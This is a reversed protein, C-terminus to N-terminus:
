RLQCYCLNSVKASANVNKFFTSQKLSDVERLSEKFVWSQNRCGLMEFIIDVGANISIVVGNCFPNLHSNVDSNKM